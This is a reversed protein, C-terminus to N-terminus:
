KGFTTVYRMLIAAAEARTAQGTPDLVGNGKGSILKEAVAWQMASEAWESPQDSYASLDARASVNKGNAKAYNCFIAALQERTIPDNPGFAGNGYGNVIGKEAAWDIAKAYWDGAAVDIFDAATQAQPEGAMRWLMTVIMGRTTQTYPGFQDAAVGVMLKQDYVYKVPAYFWDSGSVDTFPLGTNDTKTFEAKITHAKTVKEFTYTSVAGVSEGDVLVDSIMYGANATITFTKNSGSTVSVKDSPSIKGGEGATATITYNVTASGGGGGGGSSGGSSNSHFSPKATISDGLEDFLKTLLTTTMTDKYLGDFTKTGNSFQWGDFVQSGKTDAPITADILTGDEGVKYEKEKKVTNGEYTVTVSPAKTTIEFESFGNLNTFTVKAPTTTTGPTVTAKYYYVTGDEKTHKVLVQKDADITCGDPLPVTIEIPETVQLEGTKGAVEVANKANDGTTETYIEEGAKVDATTAVTKYMPTIDLTLVVTGDTDTTYGTATVDLYPQVVLTVTTTDTVKDSGLAEKLQAKAADATAKNIANLQSTAAVKMSDEDTEIAKIANEVATKHEEKINNSITAEPEAPEVTVEVNEDEIGNDKVMYLYGDKDSNTIMKGAALYASPDSTFYGKEITISGDPYLPSLQIVGAFNGNKITTQGNEYEPLADNNAVAASHLVIQDESSFTGGEITAINWNLICANAEKWNTFTGDKINLVGYDDNKITNMGGSFKGNEITLAANKGGTNKSPDYWGNEILSSYKGSSTIEGDKITLNGQNLVVYYSNGGNNTASKGEEKSRMLTGNEITATCEVANYLAAKQHTVNDVTGNGTITLTGNNTITHGSVNTLKHGALDLTVEKGAPITVDETTDSLLVIVDTADEIAAAITAYEKDGAKAVSKVISYKDDAGKVATQGSAVYNSPDHSFTGGTIVCSVDFKKGQEDIMVAGDAAALSGGSITATVDGYKASFYVAARGLKGTGDGWNGTNGQGNSFIDGGTVNLVGDNMDIGGAEGYIKGGNINLVGEQPHYIAYDAASHLNAGENINITTGGKGPNGSGAVAFWGAEIKGGNIDCVAGEGIVSVGFQGTNAPTNGVVAYILGSEMTFKGYDEVVAYGTATSTYATETYIKGCNEGKKDTDKSDVLTLDGISKIVIHGKETSAVKIDNGNLDLTIEKDIELGAESVDADAILQITAGDIAAEVATALTDYEVEGIKAAKVATEGETQTEESSVAEENKEETGEPDGAPAGSTKNGDLNQEKPETTGEGDADKTQGTVETTGTGPQGDEDAFAFTPMLSMLMCIILLISLVKKKTM